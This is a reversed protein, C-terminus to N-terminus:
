ASHVLRLGSGYEAAVDDATTDTEEEAGQLEIRVRRRAGETILLAEFAANLAAFMMASRKESRKYRSLDECISYLFAYDSSEYFDAQGSECAADWLMRAIPHWNPDPEPITAPRSQGKTIPARDARNANRARSLDESRNPVPGRSGM